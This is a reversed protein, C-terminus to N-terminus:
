LRNERRLAIMSIYLSQKNERKQLYTTNLCSWLINIIMKMYSFYRSFLPVNVGTNNM